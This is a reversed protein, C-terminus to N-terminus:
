ARLSAFSSDQIDSREPLANSELSRLRRIEDNVVSSSEEDLKPLVTLYSRILEDRRFEGWRRM